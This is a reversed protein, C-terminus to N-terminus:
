ENRIYKVCIVQAPHSCYPISTSCLTSIKFGRVHKGKLAVVKQEGEQKEVLFLIVEGIIDVEVIVAVELVHIGFIVVVTAKEDGGSVKIRM